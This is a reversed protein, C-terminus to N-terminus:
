LQRVSAAQLELMMKRVAATGLQFATKGDRNRLEPDAKAELLKRVVSVCDNRAADMLPTDMDEDVPNVNAGSDLLVQVADLRGSNSATHLATRDQRSLNELPCGLRILRLLLASRGYRAATHLAVGWQMNPDALEVLLLAEVVNKHGGRIAYVLPAWNLGAEARLAPDAKAQLLSFVADLHGGESALSLPTRKDDDYADM